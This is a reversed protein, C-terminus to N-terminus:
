FRIAMALNLRFGFGPQLGRYRQWLPLAVSFNLTSAPTLHSTIAPTIIVADGGFNDFRRGDLRAKGEYQYQISCKLGVSPGPYKFHIARYKFAFLVTLIEGQQYDQAGKSNYKGRLVLDWRFRGISLTSMFAAVPDISGSGPQFNPGVKVNGERIQTEGSPLEVGGLVALNFASQPWVIRLFRYKAALFIDGLGAAKARRGRAQGETRFDRAVYPILTTLTVDEHPAYSLGFIQRFVNRTDTGGHVRRTGRFLQDRRQYSSVSHLQIAHKYLSEAAFLDLGGQQAHAKTSCLLCLLVAYCLTKLVNIM